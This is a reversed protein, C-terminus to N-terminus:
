LITLHQKGAGPVASRVVSQDFTVFRGGYEVALALLYADTVQKSSHLRSRDVANVDLISVTCPWFEHYPTRTARALMDIAHSVPVPSPYRAQSIIRVFGNQTIACSAWGQEIEETIWARARKHDVHDRDLLALLVNIDLLARM